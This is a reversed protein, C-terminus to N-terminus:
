KNGNSYITVCAGARDRRSGSLWQERSGVVIAV